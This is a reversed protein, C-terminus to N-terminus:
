TNSSSFNQTIMVTDQLLPEVTNQLSLNCTRMCFVMSLIQNLGPNFKVMKQNVPGQYDLKGLGNAGSSGM